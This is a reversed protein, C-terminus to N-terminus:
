SLVRDADALAEAFRSNAAYAVGRNIYGIPMKPLIAVVENFAAIAEELKGKQLLANGSSLFEQAKLLESQTQGKVSIFFFLLLAGAICRLTNGKNISM